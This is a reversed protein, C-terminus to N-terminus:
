ALMRDEAVHWLCKAEESRHVRIIKDPPLIFPFIPLFGHSLVFEPVVIQLIADVGPLDGLDFESGDVLETELLDVIGLLCHKPWDKLGHLPADSYIELAAVVQGEFDLVFDGASMLEEAVDEAVGEVRAGIARLPL